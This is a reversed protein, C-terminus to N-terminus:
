KIVGIGFLYLDFISSFITKVFIDGDYIQQM